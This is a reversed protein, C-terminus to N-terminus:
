VHLFQLIRRLVEAIYNARREGGLHNLPGQLWLRHGIDDSLRTVMHGANTNEFCGEFVVQHSGVLMAEAELVIVLVRADPQLARLSTLPLQQLDTELRPQVYRESPGEEDRLRRRSLSPQSLQIPDEPLPFEWDELNQSAMNDVVSVIFIVL